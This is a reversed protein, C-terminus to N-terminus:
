YPTIVEMDMIHVIITGIVGGKVATEEYKPGLEPIDLFGPWYDYIILQSGSENNKIEGAIMEITTIGENLCRCFIEAHAEFKDMEVDGEYCWLIYEMARRKLTGAYDEAFKVSNCSLLWLFDLAPGLTEFYAELAEGSIKEGSELVLWYEDEYIEGHGAIFLFLRDDGDTLSDIEKIYEAFDKVTTHTTSDSYVKPKDGLPIWDGYISSNQHIKCGIDWINHLLSAPFNALQPDLYTSEYIIAVLIRREEDASEPYYDKIEIQQKIGGTPESGATPKQKETKTEGGVFYPFTLFIVLFICLYAFLLLSTTVWGRSEEFM